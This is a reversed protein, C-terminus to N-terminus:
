MMTSFFFFALLRIKAIFCDPCMSKKKEYGEGLQQPWSINKYQLQPVKSFYVRLVLLLASVADDWAANSFM